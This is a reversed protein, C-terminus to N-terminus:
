HLPSDKYSLTENIISLFLVDIEHDLPTPALPCVLMYIMRKNKLMFTVNLMRLSIIVMFMM